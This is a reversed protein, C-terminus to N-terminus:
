GANFSALVVRATKLKSHGILKVKVDKPNCWESDGKWVGDSWCNGNWKYSHLGQPHCMRAERINKCIVIFKDYSEYNDNITQTVMYINMVREKKKLKNLAEDRNLHEALAHEECKQCLGYSVVKDRSICRCQSIIIGCDKCIVKFHKSM